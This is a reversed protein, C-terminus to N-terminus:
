GRAWPPTPAPVLPLPSDVPGFRDSGARWDDNAREIEAHTRAVYNWWMSVTEPFPVGGLLMARATGSADGDASSITLEDRGLGLYALAGPEGRQGDHLAAGELVVVAHEFSPDLPVLADGHGITLEVGVLETDHRAPSTAGSWTGVLVTATGTSLDVRPLEGHHEFAPDGHRTSEPQAVWLQIAHNLGRHGAATQEAHAIGRGATMLNLQGPRIVQDSGLSDTHRVEGTVLWTVTQLGIHPHPGVELPSSSPVAHDAFCWAGVTRRRRGPLARRVQHGGVEATRSPTIEVTPGSAGATDDVELDQSRVPGSM